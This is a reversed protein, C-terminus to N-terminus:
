EVVNVPTGNTINGATIVMEGEELGSLIVTETDNSSGTKVVKRAATGDEVTYVVDDGLYTDLAATPVIMANDIHETELNLKIYMGDMLGTRDGTIEIKIDASRTARNLTPSIYALTGTYIRGPYAVSEFEASMGIRLSGLFKEPVSATIILDDNDTLTLLATSASVNEGESVATDLVIGGTRAVVPSAMYSQGPRSPDIYAVIEGAEVIDGEKVLLETVIGSATIDPFVMIDNGERTIEGNLRSIRSFTGYSVTEASVNVAEALTEEERATLQIDEKQSFMKIVISVTLVLCILILVFTVAKSGKGSDKSEALTKFDVEKKKEEM